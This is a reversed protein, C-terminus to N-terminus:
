IRSRVAVASPHSDTSHRTEPGHTPIAPVRQPTPHKARLVSQPRRLPDPPQSPKSAGSYSRSFLIVVHRSSPMCGLLDDAFQAFALLQDPPTRSRPPTCVGRSRRPRRADTALETRRCSILSALRSLSSSRSFARSLFITASCAKSISMSLSSDRPFKQVRVPAAPDHHTGCCRNRTRLASRARHRPLGARHLALRRHNGVDHKLRFRVVACQRAGRKLLVSVRASYRM